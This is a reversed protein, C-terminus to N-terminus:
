AVMYVALGSGVLALGVLAFGLPIQALPAGAFRGGVVMRGEVLNRSPSGSLGTVLLLIAGTFWLAYSISDRTSNETLHAYLAGAVAIGATLLLSVAVVQVLARV